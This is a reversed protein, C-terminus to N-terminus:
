RKNKKGKSKRSKNKKGKSKRSKNKGGKTLSQRHTVVLFKDNSFDRAQADNRVFGFSEYYQKDHPVRDDLFITASGDVPTINTIADILVTLLNRGYGKTQEKKLIHNTCMYNIEFKGISHKDANNSYIELVLVAYINDGVTVYLIWNSDKDDICDRIGQEWESCFGELIQVKSNDNQILIGRTQLEELLNDEVRTMTPGTPRVYYRISM